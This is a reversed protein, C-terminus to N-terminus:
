IACIQAIPRLPLAYINSVYLTGKLQGKWTVPLIVSNFIQFYVWNNNKIKLKWTFFCSLLLTVCYIIFDKGEEWQQRSKKCGKRRVDAFSWNNALIQTWQAAWNQNKHLLLQETV